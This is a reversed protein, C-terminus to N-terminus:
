PTASWPVHASAHRVARFLLVTGVLYLSLVVPELPDFRVAGPVGAADQFVLAMLYSLQHMVGAVLAIAGLVVGTARGRWLLTAATSYLPVLVALDLVIGLQVVRDTEVLLSGEPLAGTAAYALCVYVWMGGLASALVALTAAAGRLARRSEDLTTDGGASGPLERILEVISGTLVAVHLLLLDTFGNGLVYYAYTYGLYALSAVAVLRGSTTTRRQGTSAWLLGPLVVVLTVLDYGRLMQSTAAVGTGHRGSAYLGAVVLGAVASVAAAAAVAVTLRDPGGSYRSETPGPIRGDRPETHAGAARHTFKQIATM